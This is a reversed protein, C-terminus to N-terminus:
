LGKKTIFNIHKENLKNNKIFPEINNLVNQYRILLNSTRENQKKLIKFNAVNVGILIFFLV